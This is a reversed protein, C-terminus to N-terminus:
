KNQSLLDVGLTDADCIQSTKGAPFKGTRATISWGELEPTTEKRGKTM